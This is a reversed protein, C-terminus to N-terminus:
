VRKEPGRLLVHFLPYFSDATFSLFRTEHSRSSEPPLVAQRTHRPADREREVDISGKVDRVQAYMCLSGLFSVPFAV